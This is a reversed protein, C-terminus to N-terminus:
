KYEFAETVGMKEYRDRNMEFHMSSMNNLYEKLHGLKYRTRFIDVQASDILGIKPFARGTKEVDYDVQTGFKQKQGGNVQVRDFLYAFNNPDANNRKVEKDMSLLVKKQFEPYKDCHQVILWFNRSGQEGIQQYGPFGFRRFMEEAQKKNQTFVSDKFRAWQPEWRSAAVQDSKVMAELEKQLYDKRDPTLKATCGEGFFVIVLCFCINIMWPM